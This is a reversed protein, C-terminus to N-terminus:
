EKYKKLNKSKHLRKTKKNSGRQNGLKLWSFNKRREDWAALFSKKPDLLPVRM